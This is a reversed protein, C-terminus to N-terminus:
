LYARGPEVSILGEVTEIDPAEARIMGGLQCATQEQKNLLAESAAASTITRHWIRDEGGAHVCRVAQEAGLYWFREIKSRGGAKCVCLAWATLRVAVPASSYRYASRIRALDLSVTFAARSRRSSRVPLSCM